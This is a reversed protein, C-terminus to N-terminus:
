IFEGDRSGDTGPVGGAAADRPPAKKDVTRLDNGTSVCKTYLLTFETQFITNVLLIIM